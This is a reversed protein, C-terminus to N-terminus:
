PHICHFVYMTSISIHAVSTRSSSIASRMQANSLNLTATLPKSSGPTNTRSSNVPYLMQGFSCDCTRDANFTDAHDKLSCILPFLRVKYEYDPHLSICSKQPEKWIEPISENIYTQHLIKPIMHPRNDVISSNAAHLEARHIADARGDEFLLSILTFVSHVLFALILLNIVLFIVLGRRM